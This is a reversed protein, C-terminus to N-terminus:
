QAAHRSRERSVGSPLAGVGLRGERGSAAM